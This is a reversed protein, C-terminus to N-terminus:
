RVRDTPLPRYAATLLRPATGGAPGLILARRPGQGAWPRYGFMPALAYYDWYGGTLLQDPNYISHIAQGENLILDRERGREVVQIYGYESDSEYISRGGAPRRITGYPVAAGLIPLTCLVTLAAASVRLSRM